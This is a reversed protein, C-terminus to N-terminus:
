TTRSFPKPCEWTASLTEQKANPFFEIYRQGCHHCIMVFCAAQYQQGNYSDVTVFGWDMQYAEGPATLYRRGRNGQSAVAHRPAPVLHQHSAIYRKITTQSGTYGNEKLRSLCVASNTVGNRLLGDLLGTYGSLLTVPSKRGKAAHQTDEFNHAKMRRLKQRSLGTRRALEALNVKELSFMEGQEAMMEEIAKAVEPTM